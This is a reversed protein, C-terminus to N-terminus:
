NRPALNGEGAPAKWVPLEWCVSKLPEPQAGPGLTWHLEWMCIHPQPQAPLCPPPEAPVPALCAARPFLQFLSMWSM